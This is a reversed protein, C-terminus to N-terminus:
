GVPDRGGRDRLEEGLLVFGAVAAVVFLGPLLLHPAVGLRLDADALQLGWSFTPRALGAGAFTLTAEAAVALGAYTSALVVLPRLAGPLVHRLLVRASSAGLARAALVHDRGKETVVSSRLVRALPPWAFLALVMSLQLPGRRESSSLVVVGGLALPIGSWVETFRSLAADTRGGVWGALAGLVLAVLSTGVMVLLAVVLSTRAGHVTVAWMDCGQLDYGFVHGRSPPLLSNSLDCSRPDAGTFLRPALAMLALLGLVLVALLGRASRHPRRQAVAAPPGALDLAM